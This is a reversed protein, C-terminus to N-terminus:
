TLTFEPSPRSERIPLVDIFVYLKGRQKETRLPGGRITFNIVGFEHCGGPLPIPQHIVASSINHYFM